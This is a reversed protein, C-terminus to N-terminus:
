GDTGGDNATPSIVVNDIVYESGIGTNWTPFVMILDIATLDLGNNSLDSLNFQYSKWVNLEPVTDLRLEVAESGGNSEVKFNWVDAPTEGAALLKIDFSIVGEVMWANVDIPQPDTAVGERSSFGNVTANVVEFFTVAGYTADSDTTVPPTTGGCCDWAVWQPNAADNFIVIPTNDTTGGDTG